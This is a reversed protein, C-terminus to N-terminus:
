YRHVFGVGRPLSPAALDRVPIIIPEAEGVIEAKGSRTLMEADGLDLVCTQGPEAPQGGILFGAKETARVRVRPIKFPERIPAMTGGESIEISM